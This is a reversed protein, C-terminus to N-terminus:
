LVARIGPVRQQMDPVCADASPVDESVVRRLSGLANKQKLELVSWLLRLTEEESDHCHSAKFDDVFRDFDNKFPNKPAFRQLNSNSKVLENFKFYEVMPDVERVVPTFRKYMGSDVSGRNDATQKGASPKKFVDYHEEREIM